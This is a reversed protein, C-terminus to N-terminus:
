TEIAAEGHNGVNRLTTNTEHEISIYDEAGLVLLGRITRCHPFLEGLSVADCGPRGSDDIVGRHFGGFECVEFGGTFIKSHM